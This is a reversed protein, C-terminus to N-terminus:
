PACLEKTAREADSRAFNFQRWSDQPATACLHAVMRDFRRNSLPRLADIRDVIVPTADESLWFLAQVSIVGDSSRPNDFNYDAMRQDPNSLAMVAVFALWTCIVAGSVWERESRWGLVRVAVLGLVVMLFVGFGFSWWRLPTMFNRQVYEAIRQLAIVDILAALVVTTVALGRFRRLDAPAETRVLRRLLLVLAITLAAVFLLQFFGSRVESRWADESLPQGLNGLRLVVFSLFLVDLAGLVMTCEVMGLPRRGSAPGVTRGMTAVLAVALFLGALVVAVAARAFPLQGLNIVRAFVADAEALLLWFLWTVLAAFLLGRAVAVGTGASRRPELDAAVPVADAKPELRFLAGLRYDFVQQGTGTMTMVFAGVLGSTGVICLALWSNDRIVLFPVLVGALGILRVASPHVRVTHALGIALAALVLASGIGARATIATAGVVGLFGALRLLDDPVSRVPRDFEIVPEDLVAM